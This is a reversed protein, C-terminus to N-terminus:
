GGAGLSALILILVVPTLALVAWRVRRALAASPPRGVLWVALAAQVGLLLFGLSRLQSAHWEALGVGLCIGCLAAWLTARWWELRALAKEASM